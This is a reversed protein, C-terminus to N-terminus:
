GSAEGGEKIASSPQRPKAGTSKSRSPPKSPKPNKPSSGKAKGKGKAEKPRGRPEPAEERDLFEQLWLRSVQIRENEPVIRLSGATVAVVDVEEPAAELAAHLAALEAM